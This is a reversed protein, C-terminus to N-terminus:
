IIPTTDPEYKIKLCAIIYNILLDAKKFESNAYACCAGQFMNWCNVLQRNSGVCSATCDKILDIGLESMKILLQEYVTRYKIPVELYIWNKSESM